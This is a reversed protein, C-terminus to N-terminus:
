FEITVKATEGSRITVETEQERLEGRVDRVAVLTYTGEPINDIRFDSSPVNAFFPHDFVLIAAMMEPHINCLILYEGARPPSWDFSSNPPQSQNLMSQRGWYLHVNHTLADSNKFRVTQGKQVALLHPLFVKKKQDLVAPEQPVPYNGKVGRLHVVTNEQKRGKSVEIEGVLTGSAAQGIATAALLGSLAIASGLVIIFKTQRKM